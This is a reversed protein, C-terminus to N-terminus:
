IPRRWGTIIEVTLACVVEETRHSNMWRLSGIYGNDWSSGYVTLVVDLPM